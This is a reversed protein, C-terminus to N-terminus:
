LCIHNFNISFVLGDPECFYFKRHTYHMKNKASEPCFLAKTFTQPIEAAYLGTLKKDNKM